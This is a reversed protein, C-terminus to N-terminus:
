IGYCENAKKIIEDEPLDGSKLHEEVKRWYELGLTLGPLHGNGMEMNIQDATATYFGKDVLKVFYPLFREQMGKLDLEREEGVKFCQDIGHAGAKNLTDADYLIISTENTHTWGNHEEVAVAIEETDQGSFGLIPFYERVNKGGNISHDEYPGRSVGSDHILGASIKNVIKRIDETECILIIKETDWVAHDYNHLPLGGQAYLEKALENVRQLRPYSKLYHELRM